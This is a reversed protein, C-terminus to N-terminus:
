FRVWGVEGEAVLAWLFRGSHSTEEWPAHLAPPDETGLEGARLQPDLAAGFGRGLPHAARRGRVPLGTLHGFAEPEASGRDDDEGSGWLAKGTM